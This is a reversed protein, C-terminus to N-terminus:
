AEGLDLPEIGRADVLETWQEPLVRAVSDRIRVADSEIRVREELAIEPLQAAAAAVQSGTFADCAFPDSSCLPNRRAYVASLLLNNDATGSIVSLTVGPGVHSLDTGAAYFDPDLTIVDAQAPVAVLAVMGVSALLLRRM